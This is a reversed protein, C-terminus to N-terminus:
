IHCDVLTLLTDDPLTEMLREFEADWDYHEKADTVIAWWGMEGRQYWKGKGQELDAPLFFVTRGCNYCVMKFM